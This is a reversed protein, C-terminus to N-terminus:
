VGAANQLHGHKREAYDAHPNHTQVRVGARDRGDFDFAAYPASALPTGKDGAIASEAAAEIGEAYGRLVGRMAGSKMLAIYGSSNHVFRVDAM